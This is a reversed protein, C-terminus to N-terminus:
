DLCLKFSAKYQDKSNHVERFYEPKLSILGAMLSGRKILTPNEAVNAWSIQGQERQHWREGYIRTEKCLRKQFDNRMYLSARPTKWKCCDVQINEQFHQILM